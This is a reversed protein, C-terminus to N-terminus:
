LQAHTVSCDIEVFRAHLSEEVVEGRALDGYFGRRFRVQFSVDIPLLAPISPTMPALRNMQQGPSAVMNDGNTVQQPHCLSLPWRPRGATLKEPSELFVQGLSATLHARLIPTRGPEEGREQVFM